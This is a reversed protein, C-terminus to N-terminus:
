NANEARPRDLLEGLVNSQYKSESADFCIVSEGSLKTSTLFHTPAKFDMDCITFRKGNINNTINKM